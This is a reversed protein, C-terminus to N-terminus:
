EIVIKSAIVGAKKIDSKKFDVDNDVCKFEKCTVNAGELSTLGNNSANFSLDVKEPCGTLDKIKPNMFVVVSNKVHKPLGELSTLNNNFMVTILGDWEDPCKPLRTIDTNNFILNGDDVYKKYEEDSQPKGEIEFENLFQKFSKIKSYM